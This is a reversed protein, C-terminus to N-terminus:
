ADRYRAHEVRAAYGAIDADSADPPVNLRVGGPIDAFERGLVDVAVVGEAVLWRPDAALVTFWPAVVERHYHTVGRLAALRNLLRKADLAGLDVESTDFLNDSAEVESSRRLGLWIGSVPLVEAIGLRNPTDVVM